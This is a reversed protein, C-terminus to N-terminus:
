NESGREVKKKQRLVLHLIQGRVAKGNLHAVSLLDLAIGHILTHMWVFCQVHELIVRSSFVVVEFKSGKIETLQRAWVGGLAEMLRLETPLPTHLLSFHGCIGNQFAVALYHLWLCCAALAFLLTTFLTNIWPGVIVAMVLPLRM